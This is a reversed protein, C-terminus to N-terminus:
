YNITTYPPFPSLFTIKSSMYRMSRPVGWGDRRKRKQREEFRLKDKSKMARRNKNVM